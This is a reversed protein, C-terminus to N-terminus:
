KARFPMEVFSERVNQGTSDTKHVFYANVQM